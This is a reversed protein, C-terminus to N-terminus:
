YALSRETLLSGINLPVIKRGESYFLKYLETIATLQRTTFYVSSTNFTKREAVKVSANLTCLYNFREFLHELYERHIISQEFRLFANENNKRSIFL